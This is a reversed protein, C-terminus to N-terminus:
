WPKTGIACWTPLLPLGCKVFSPAYEEHHLHYAPHINNQFLEKPSRLNGKQVQLSSILPQNSIPVSEHIREFFHTQAM